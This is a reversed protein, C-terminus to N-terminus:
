LALCVPSRRPCIADHGYHQSTEPNDGYSSTQKTFGVGTCKLTPFTYFQLVSDNDHAGVSGHSPTSWAPEENSGNVKALSSCDWNSDITRAWEVGVLGTRENHNLGSGMAASQGDSRCTALAVRSHGSRLHGNASTAVKDAVETAQLIRRAWTPGPM